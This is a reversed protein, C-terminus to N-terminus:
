ITNSIKELLTLYHRTRNTLTQYHKLTDFLGQYHGIINSLAQYHKITDSLQYTNNLLIYISFQVVPWLDLIMSYSALFHKFIRKKVSSPCFFLSFFPCQRASFSVFRKASSSHDCTCLVFSFLHDRGSCEAIYYGINCLM